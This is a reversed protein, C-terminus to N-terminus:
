SKGGKARKEFQDVLAETATGLAIMGPDGSATMTKALARVVMRVPARKLPSRWTLIHFLDNASDRDLTM